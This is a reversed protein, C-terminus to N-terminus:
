EQSQNCFKPFLSRRTCPVFIQVFGKVWYTIQVEYCSKYPYICLIYACSGFIPVLVRIEYLFGLTACPGRFSTCSVWVKYWFGSSFLVLQALVQKQYCTHIKKRSLFDADILWAFQCARTVGPMCMCDSLSPSPYPLPLQAIIPMCTLLVFGEHSTQSHPSHPPGKAPLSPQRRMVPSSSLPYILPPPIPPSSISFSPFTFPSFLLHSVLFLTCFLRISLSYVLSHSHFQLQFYFLIEVNIVFHTLLPTLLILSLHRKNLSKRTM